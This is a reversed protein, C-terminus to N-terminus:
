GDRERDQIPGTRNAVIVEASTNEGGGKFAIAWEMKRSVRGM